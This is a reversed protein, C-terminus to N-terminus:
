KIFTYSKVRKDEPLPSRFTVTIAGDELTAVFSFGANTMWEGLKPLDAIEGIGWSDRSPISFLPVLLGAHRGEFFDRPM